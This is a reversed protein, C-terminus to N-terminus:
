SKKKSNRCHKLCM